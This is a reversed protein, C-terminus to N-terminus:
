FKDNGYFESTLKTSSSDIMEFLNAAKQKGPFPKIFTLDVEMKSKTLGTITQSGEGSEEGVWSQTAGIEGDIGTIKIKTTKDNLIWVSYDKQNDLFRVYNYVSDLPNKIIISESITYQKPLIAAAILAIGLILIISLLLYKLIKM